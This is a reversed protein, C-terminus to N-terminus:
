KYTRSRRGLDLEFQGETRLGRELANAMKELAASSRSTGGFIAHTSQLEAQRPCDGCKNRRSM